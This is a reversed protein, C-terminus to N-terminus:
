IKSSFYKSNAGYSLSKRRREENTFEAISNNLLSCRKRFNDYQNGTYTTLHRQHVLSIVSPPLVLGYKM